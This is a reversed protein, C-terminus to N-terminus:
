LARVADAVQPVPDVLARALDEAEDLCRVGLRGVRDVALGVPQHRVLDVGDALVGSGPSSADIRAPRPRTACRGCSGPRHWASGIVTWAARPPRRTPAGPRTTRSSPRGPM